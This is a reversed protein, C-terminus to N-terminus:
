FFEVIMKSQSKTFIPGKVKNLKKNSNVREQILLPPFQLIVLNYKFNIKKRNMM